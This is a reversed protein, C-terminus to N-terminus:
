SNRRTRRTAYRTGEIGSHRRVPDAGDRQGIGSFGDRHCAARVCDAAEKLIGRMMRASVRGAHRMGSGLGLDARQQPLRRLHQRDARLGRQGAPRRRHTLHHNRRAAEVPYDRGAATAYDSLGADRDGLQLGRERPAVGVVRGHRRELARADAAGDGGVGGPGGGELVAGRATPDASQSHHQGVAAHQLQLAALVAGVRVAVELQVAGAAQPTNRYRGVPHRVHRLPRGAIEGPGAHVRDVQEDPRLPRETHDGLHGAVHHRRSRLHGQDPQGHRVLRARQRQNRRQPAFRLGRPPRAIRAAQVHSRNLM